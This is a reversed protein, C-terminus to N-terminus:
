LGGAQCEGRAIAGIIDGHSKGTAHCVDIRSKSTQNVVKIFYGVRGDNCISQGDACRISNAAYGAGDALHNRNM